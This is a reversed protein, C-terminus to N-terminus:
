RQVAISLPSSGCTVNPKGAAVRDGGSRKTEYLAADARDIAVRSAAYVDGDAFPAYAVGLSATYVVLRGDPLVVRGDRISRLM